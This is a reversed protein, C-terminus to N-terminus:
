IRTRYPRRVTVEPRSSAGDGCRREGAAKARTMSSKTLLRRFQESM